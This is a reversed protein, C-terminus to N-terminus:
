VYVLSKDTGCTRRFTGDGNGSARFHASVIRRYLLVAASLVSGSFTRLLLILYYYFTCFVSACIGSFYDERGSACQDSFRGEEGSLQIGAHFEDRRDAWGSFLVVARLTNEGARFGVEFVFWYVLVTVVPQIFAWIIGLYSGAYKTRFDNKALKYIMKRGKIIEAPLSTQKKM